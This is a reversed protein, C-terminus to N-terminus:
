GTDKLFQALQANVFDPQELTSIHGADPIPVFQSGQIVDHMLYGELVSRAKDQGGAMILCPLNLKDADETTDRRGFIMRGLRYLPDIQEQTVNSLSLEFMDVLAAKPKDAFFLPIIAARILPSISNEQKIVDLMGYYKDRTIEPEYGIFSNLMVLREIRNPAALALEAGWMAGVSLGIVSCTEIQLTDLLTLMHAAIDRLDRCRSPMPMSMGHGWLDPVICRYHQSFLAIQPAWMHADWLYSHGFLLVPGQGIDIYSLAQGDITIHHRHQALDSNKV